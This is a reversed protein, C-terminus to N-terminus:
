EQDDLSDVIEFGVTQLTNLNRDCIHTEVPKEDFVNKSLHAAYLGAARIFEEDGGQVDKVVIRFQYVDGEKAIQVTGSNEGQFFGTEVLYEKLKLALEKTVDPTYFLESDGYELKGGLSSSAQEACGGILLISSVVILIVVGAWKTRLFISM